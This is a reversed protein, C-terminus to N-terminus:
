IKPTALISEKGQISIIKLDVTKGVWGTTDDGYASALTKANDRNLRWTKEKGDINLPITLKEGYDTKQYSGAGIIVGEKRIANRVIDVNLFESETAQRASVM